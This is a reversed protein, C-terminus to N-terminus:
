LWSPPNLATTGGTETEVRSVQSRLSTQGVRAWTKSKEDSAVQGAALLLEKKRFFTARSYGEAEAVALWQGTTLSGEDLLNLLPTQDSHKDDNDNRKLDAPDLDPREVMVPFAWQVVFPAQPPLNRLNMEVTYCNPENHQTLTMITDADRTFVGSGSLRDMATKNKPSGKSFHHSYVVAAGTAEMIREIQNCLAGVSSTTNESKGVMAKYIPDLLILAYKDKGACQIIEQTLVEFDATLGRLNWIDLNALDMQTKRQQIVKLRDAIFERRIEFNIFLIRAKRTNFKLFSTGTAVATALDLLIWTKGVKSGSALVGKTGQHLLGMVLETSKAITNDTLLQTGSDIKPLGPIKPKPRLNIIHLPKVSSSTIPSNM